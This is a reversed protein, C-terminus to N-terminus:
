RMHKVNLFYLVSFIIGMFAIMGSGIFGLFGDYIMLPAVVAVIVGLVYLYFGKKDLGWMLIAGVLTLLNAIGSAIANNKIKDESIDASVSDMIKGVLEASKEDKAAEDMQDKAEELADQTIGTAMGAATYNTIASYIGFASGLFTLVCLVTLFTPRLNEM